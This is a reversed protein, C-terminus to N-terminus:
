QRALANDLMGLVVAIAQMSQENNRSLIKRVHRQIQSRFVPLASARRDSAILREPPVRLAEALRAVMDIGAAAEARELKGVYSGTVMAAQALAQQSMAREKRVARLQQAFLRVIEHHEIRRKRAM